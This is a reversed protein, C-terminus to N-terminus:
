FSFCVPRDCSGPPPGLSNLKPFALERQRRRLTPLPGHLFNIHPIRSFVRAELSSPHQFLAIWSVHTIMIVKSGLEVSRASAVMCTSALSRSPRRSSVSHRFTPMVDLYRLGLSCCWLVVRAAVHVACVSNFFLTMIYPFKNWEPRWNTEM